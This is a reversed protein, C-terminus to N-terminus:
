RVLDRLLEPLLGQGKFKKTDEIEIDTIEENSLKEIVEGASLHAVSGNKLWVKYRADWENREKVRKILDEVKKLTM